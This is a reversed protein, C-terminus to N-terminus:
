SSRVIIDIIKDNKTQKYVLLMPHASLRKYILLCPQYNNYEVTIIEKQEIYAANIRPRRKNINQSEPAANIRPRRKNSSIRYM